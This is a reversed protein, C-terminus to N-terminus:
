RRARTGFLDHEHAVRGFGDVEDGVRPRAGVQLGAIRDHQRVHLVVGVDHRPVHEGGLAADLQAPDRESVVEAEVERVEVLQEVPGLQERDARHRVHEAGDVLDPREGVRGVRVVCEHQDVRALVHRVHAGIDLRPVRIEDREGRVLEEARAADTGQPGAVFQELRHRREETTALHDTVDADVTEGGVVHRPLEFGSGLRDDLGDPEGGRDVVEGREAHVRDAVM